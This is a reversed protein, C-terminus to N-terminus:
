TRSPAPSKRVLGWLSLGERSLAALGLLTVPVYSIAWFLLAFAQAPTSAQGWLVLTKEMAVHFVGVFGPAQPLVVTLAIAVATFCAAGFPLQIDLASYLVQISMAGNLWLALTLLTCNMVDTRSKLSAIGDMFSDFISLMRGSLREPLRQIVGRFLDRIPGRVLVLVAFGALGVVGIAGFLLGYRRLNHVLEGEPGQTPPLVALMLLFVFLLGILDFVREVVNTALIAPLPVGLSRTAVLPRALEGARAPLLTNAAAGIVMASFLPGFRAGPCTPRLLIRWRLTRFVFELLLFAAALAVRLADARALADVLDPWHISALFWSMLGIGLALGVILLVRTRTMGASPLGHHTSLRPRVPWSRHQM